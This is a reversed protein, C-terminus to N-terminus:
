MHLYLIAIFQCKLAKTQLQAAIKLKTWDESDNGVTASYSTLLSDVCHTDVFRAYGRVQIMCKVHTCVLIQKCEHMETHDTGNTLFLFHSPSPGSKKVM